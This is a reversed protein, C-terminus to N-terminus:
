ILISSGSSIEILLNASVRKLGGLNAKIEKMKEEAHRLMSKAEDEADEASLFAYSNLFLEFAGLSFLGM